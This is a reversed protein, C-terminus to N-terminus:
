YFALATKGSKMVIEQLKRRIRFLKVKVNSLSLGTTKSIDDVSREDLYYLTLILHDDAQLEELAKELLAFKEELVEGDREKEPQLPQNRELYADLSATAVVKKRTASIATNYAIRYIWTAFSAEKRFTALSHYSKVFVDQALEQALERNRVIQLVLSYVRDKYRDVLVAFARQDGNLVQGIVM